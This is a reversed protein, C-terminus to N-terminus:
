FTAVPLLRVQYGYEIQDVSLEQVVANVSFIAESTIELFNTFRIPIGSKEVLIGSVSRKYQRLDLETLALAFSDPIIVIIRGLSGVKDLVDLWLLLSEKSFPDCSVVATFNQLPAIRPVFLPKSLQQLVFLMGIFGVFDRNWEKQFSSSSAVLKKQLVELTTLTIKELSAFYKNYVFKGMKRLDDTRWAEINKLVDYINNITGVYYLFSLKNWDLIDDFPLNPQSSIIVPITSLKLAVVLLWEFATNGDFLMVFKSQRFVQIIQLQKGSVDCFARDVTSCSELILVDLKGVFNARVRERGDAQLGYSIVTLFWSMNRPTISINEVDDHWFPIAIDYNHRFSSDYTQSRAAIAKGAPIRAGMFVFILPTTMKTTAQLAHNLAMSYPFRLLNLTDFGPVVLCADKANNVAYKSALIISRIKLFEKSPNPTIVAGREDVVKILPEVYVTLQNDYISCPMLNVCTDVTCSAYADDENLSTKFYYIAINEQFM